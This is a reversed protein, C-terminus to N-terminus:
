ALLDRLERMVQKGPIARARGREFEDLRREAEKLWLKEQKVKTQKTSSTKFAAPVLQRM